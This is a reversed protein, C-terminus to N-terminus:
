EYIQDTIRPNFQKLRQALRRVTYFLRSKVTGEACGLAEGIERISFGEQYRLLFTTRHDDDLADIELDLMAKFEKRDIKEVASEFATPLEDLEIAVTQRIRRSRYENKCMNHAISFIWTSFRRGSSFLDPRDVVKMFIDHLFDQATSEDNGLMRYLYRLIRASYRRYLEDFASTEGRGILEM